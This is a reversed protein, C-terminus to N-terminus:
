LFKKKIYIYLNCNLKKGVLLEAELYDYENLETVLRGPHYYLDIVRM